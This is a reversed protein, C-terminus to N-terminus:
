LERKIMALLATAACQEDADTDLTEAPFVLRSLRYAPERRALTEAIFAMLEEDNKNRILPRKDKIPKLRNFLEGASVKLYVTLGTRNMYDMNGHLMPTGGGTSVVIGETEPIERLMESEIRRFEEEGEEQFLQGVSKSYRSEIMQDLDVFPVALKEALLCGLTTKGAGMYGILYIRKM